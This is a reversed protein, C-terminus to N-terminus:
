IKVTSRVAFENNISDSRESQLFLTGTDKFWRLSPLILKAHTPKKLFSGANLCTIRNIDDIVQDTNQLHVILYTLNDEPTTFQEGEYMFYVRQSSLYEKASQGLKFPKRGAIEKSNELDSLDPMDELLMIKWGNNEKILEAKTKGGHDLPHYKKIEYILDGKVDVDIFEDRYYIPNIDNFPFKEGDTGQLMGNRSKQRLLDKGRDVLESLKMGFPVLLLETFGQARKKELLEANAEIRKLIEDYTPIPCEKGNIDYMGLIGKGAKESAQPLIEIVQTELLAKVQEQYQKKLEFLKELREQTETLKPKEQAPLIFKEREM